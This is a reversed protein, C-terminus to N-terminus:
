AAAAVLLGARGADAGLDLRAWGTARLLGEAQDPTLSSRSPEGLAAVTARLREVVDGAGETSLSLALRTDAAAVARLEALVDRLVEPELYFAVGECLALSAADPNWGHQLLAADVGGDALELAVFATDRADIELRELRARKDAQTLPHDVEFWRVGPRAYRLSRGDYGAGIAAVQVVGAELAGVVVRDFFETRAGLYRAMRASRVTEGAAAVDRALRDDAAPDGFPARARPLTLRYAAVRQATISPGGERM